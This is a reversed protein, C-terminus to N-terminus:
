QVEGHKCAYCQCEEQRGGRWRPSHNPKVLKKTDPKQDDRYHKCIGDCGLGLCAGANEFHTARHHGCHCVQRLTEPDDTM